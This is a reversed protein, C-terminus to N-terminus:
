QCTYEEVFILALALKARQSGDYLNKKHKPALM